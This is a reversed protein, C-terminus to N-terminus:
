NLEVLVCELYPCFEAREPFFSKSFLTKLAESVCASLSSFNRRFISEVRSSLLYNKTSCVSNNEQKIKLRLDRIKRFWTMEFNREPVNYENM